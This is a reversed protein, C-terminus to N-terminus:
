YRLAAFFMAFVGDVVIVMFIAKVVSTTTQRGLSEASGEVRLGEVCAILGIILAMFPAKILGVYFTPPWVAYSLRALFADPAVGVYAWAVLGAGALAALDAIVTLLPVAVVLAVLRPLVLVEIPDLGFVRLADIEERMKMSGIEATFASGSRGAVMIATLLLGIERLVLISVLDVVLINAGFRSLQFAGQQAVIGGVLFSMLAIIPVARLGTRDLHHVVSTGRFRWPRRVLAGLRSVVTGLFNTIEVADAAVAAVAKGTRALAEAVGGRPPQREASISPARAAVEQLIVRQASTVHAFGIEIGAAHWRQFAGYLLWAGATDLRTVQGLDVEVREVGDLALGAIEAERARIEGATCDGSPAFRLVKPERAAEAPPANHDTVATM